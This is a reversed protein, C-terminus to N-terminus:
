NELLQYANAAYDQATGNVPKQEIGGATQVQLESAIREKLSNVDRDLPEMELASEVLLQAITLYRPSRILLRVLDVITSVANDRKDSTYALHLAQRYRLVAQGLQGSQVNAYGLNNLQLAEEDKDKVERAIHLASTYFNIAESWREMDAYASGLGGMVRAEYGRKGQEKFLKLAQEWTSSAAEADSNDLQAYGLKYLIIAENQSDGTNRAIELAQGYAKEAGSTEGLQERADALTILMHMRTDNDGLKEALQVGRMAHLVAAQANETKVMLMSLTDLTELLEEEEGLEDYVTMAEGYTAIAENLMEDQVQTTGIEKLLEGQLRLDSQQRAQALQAKLAAVGELPPELIIEESEEEDEDDEDEDLLDEDEDEDTLTSYDMDEPAVAAPTHLSEEDEDDEDEEDFDEDELDDEFEEELEDVDEEAEEEEDFMNRMMGPSQGPMDLPYAPFATTSSSALRNLQLLEYVYGRENVFDGAGSLTVVLKRPTDRDDQEAAWRAIALFSDMEAALRDYDRNNSHKSAYALATDRVKTQLDALRRSGRLWGQTFTHTTPHLHYYPQGYRETREVLHQQQLLTLAQEIKDQPAGTLMSLFESSAEGSLTAGLMLIVGQLASNLSRFATTLAVLVPDASDYGPIQTLMNAYQAPAIKATRIISAAIVTAYPVYRLTQLVRDVDPDPGEPLGATQKFLTAASAPELAEIHITPWEETIQTPCVVLVPLNVVCREVFTTAVQEGLSGDLVVLPKNRTLTNAVAGVMSTPNETNTIERVGYARGIRVLLEDMTSDSTNLWLVGGPEETYAAAMTAAIATKGIGPEGYILVPQNARLQSYIKSIAADRGVLRPPVMVPLSAAEYAPAEHHTSDPM